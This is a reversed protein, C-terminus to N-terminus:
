GPDALAACPLVVAADGVLDRRQEAATALQAAEDRDDPLLCQGVVVAAREGEDVLELSPEDALPLLPARDLLREVEGPLQERAEGRVLELPDSGLKDRPVLVGRPDSSRPRAPGAARHGHIAARSRAAHATGARDSSRPAAAAAACRSRGSPRM